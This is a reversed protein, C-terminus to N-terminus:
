HGWVNECNGFLHGKAATAPRQDLTVFIAKPQSTGHLRERIINRSFTFWLWEFTLLFNSSCLTNCHCSLDLPQVQKQVGANLIVSDLRAVAKLCASRVSNIFGNGFWSYFWPASVKNVLKNFLGQSPFSPEKLTHHEQRHKRVTIHIKTPKWSSWGLLVFTKETLSEWGMLLRMRCGQM